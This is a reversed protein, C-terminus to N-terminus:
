IGGPAHPHHHNQRKKCIGVCHDVRCHRHQCHHLSQQAHIGPHPNYIREVFRILGRSIKQQKAMAWGMLKGPTRGPHSLHAPLIFLSEVLSILFVVIVVVPIVKFFKGMTGTVFMIPLFAVVNTLFASCWLFHWREQGTLPLRWFPKGQERHQYINEGVVIADDVVIGLTVIFAFMSIINISFDTFPLFVFAGLISIPIGLAVWFALRIELFFALFLFVLSLGIYGNRILLNARQQFIESRDSVLSIDIGQPLSKKFLAVQEKVAKAVQTPKQDGVRYVDVMIAPKGNFTAYTNSEEFGESIIAIDLLLESYDQLAPNTTDTEFLEKIKGIVPHDVNLELSRKQEPADQGSAKMIKEMYASMGFDDGSLCAVSDKLRNSIQVDKVKDSLKEKIFNFLPTYANKKRKM